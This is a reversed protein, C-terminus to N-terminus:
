FIFAKCAYNHKLSHCYLDLSVATNQQQTLPADNGFSEFQPAAEQAPAAASVAFLVLLLCSGRM